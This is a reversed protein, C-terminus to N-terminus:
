KISTVLGKEFKIVQTKNPYTKEDLIQDEITITGSYHSGDSTEILVKEDPGTFIRRFVEQFERLNGTFDEGPKRKKLKEEDVQTLSVPAKMAEILNEREKESLGELLDESIGELLDKKIEKYNDETM